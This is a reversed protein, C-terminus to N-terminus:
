NHLVTTEGSQMKQNQRAIPVFFLHTYKVVRKSKFFLALTSSPQSSAYTNQYLRYLKLGLPLQNISKQTAHNSVLRSCSFVFTAGVTSADSGRSHCAAHCASYYTIGNGGCIPDFSNFPCDCNENCSSRLSQPPKNSVSSFFFTLKNLM